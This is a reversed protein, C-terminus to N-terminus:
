SCQMQTMHNPALCALMFICSQLSRYLALGQIISCKTRYFKVARVTATEKKTEKRDSNFTRKKNLSKRFGEFYTWAAHDLKM